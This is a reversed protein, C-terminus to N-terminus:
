LDKDLDFGNRGGHRNIIETTREALCITDRTGMALAVEDTIIGDVDGALFRRLDPGNNVTWVLVKKGALHIERIVQDTLASEKLCLCDCDLLGPASPAKTCLYGTMVAPYKREIYRILDYDFAIVMSQGPMDRGTLMDVVDDAMAQDATAGKLEILLSINGQATDLAEELTPVSCSATGGALRLTKIEPLTMEAPAHDLKAVRSFTKDHHIIYQGDLTRQVDIECADCGQEMAYAIGEISNEVRAIGGGRHAIIWTDHPPEPSHMQLGCLAILLYIAIGYFQTYRHKM